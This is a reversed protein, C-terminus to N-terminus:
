YDNMMKRDCYDAYEEYRKAKGNDGYRRATKADERAKDRSIRVIDYPQVHGKPKM